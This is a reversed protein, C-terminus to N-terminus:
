RGEDQAAARLCRLADYAHRAITGESLRLAIAAEAVSRRRWYVEIIVRRREPSLALLAQRVASASRKGDSSPGPVGEVTMTSANSTRVPM